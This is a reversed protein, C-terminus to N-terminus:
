RNYPRDSHLDGVPKMPQLSDLRDNWDRSEQHKYPKAAPKKGRLAEMASPRISSAYSKQLVKILLAVLPAACMMSLGLGAAIGDMRNLIPNGFAMGSVALAGGAFFLILQPAYWVLAMCIIAVIAAILGANEM